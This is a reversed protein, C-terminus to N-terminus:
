KRDLKRWVEEHELLREPHEKVNQLISELERQKESFADDKIVIKEIMVDKLEELIKLAREGMGAKTEIEITM